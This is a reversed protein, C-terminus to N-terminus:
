MLMSNLLNKRFLNQILKFLNRFANPHNDFFGPESSVNREMVAGSENGM